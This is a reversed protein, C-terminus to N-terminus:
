AIYVPAGVPVQEYLEIVEPIRMRICGHSAATGISDAASTGHIGAGDYIGLWRAKLPNEPTGGPVVKGRDKPAVWDSDPMTWAPDVAKNQVSYLGAPTEVGVQGVAIGYTKAPKLNKYLTLQFASRNIILVAPYKDALQESTVKPEVVETRVRVRRRSSSDLLERELDRRLRATRVSLGDRSPRPDVRGSALDLKADVADRELDKEIRAVLRRVAPRSYSVKADLDADVRRGSVERWTRTFMSGERSRALAREVSGDIDVAIAAQRTTLTYRKGEYRAHVPRNLPDLLAARLTARAREATMGGVPVGNVQIGEAILGEKDKDYAYVGGAGALLAITLIALLALTRSPM